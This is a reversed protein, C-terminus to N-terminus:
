LHVAKELRERPLEPYLLAVRGEQLPVYEVTEGTAQAWRRVWLVCFHCDGDYVLVPKSPANVVQRLHNVRLSYATRILSEIQQVVAGRLHAATGLAAQAQR